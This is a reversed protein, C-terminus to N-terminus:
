PLFIPYFFVKGSSEFRWHDAVRWHLGNARDRLGIWFHVQSQNNHNDSYHWIMTLPWIMTMPWIMSMDHYGELRLCFRWPLTAETQSRGQSQRTKREAKLKLLSPMWLRAFSMRRTGLLQTIPFGKLFNLMQITLQWVQLMGHIASDM